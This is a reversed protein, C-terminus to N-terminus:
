DYKKEGQLEAAKPAPANSNLRSPFWNCRCPGVTVFHWWPDTNQYVSKGSRGLPSSLHRRQNSGTFQGFPHGALDEARAIIQTPIPHAQAGVTIRRGVNFNRCHAIEHDHRVAATGGAHLTAKVPGPSFRLTTGAVDRQQCARLPRMPVPCIVDVHGVDIQGFFQNGIHGILHHVAANRFHSQVVHELRLVRHDSGGHLGDRGLGGPIRNATRQVDFGHGRLQDHVQQATIRRDRQAFRRALSTQRWGLGPTDGLIYFVPQVFWEADLGQGADHPQPHPTEASAKTFGKATRRMRM